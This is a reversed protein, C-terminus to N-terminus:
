RAKSTGYTATTEVRGGSDSDHAIMSINATDSPQSLPTGFSLKLYIMPQHTLKTLNTLHTPNPPTAILRTPRLRPRGDCVEDCRTAPGPHRPSGVSNRTRPLPAIPTGSPLIVPTPICRRHYGHPLQSGSATPSLHLHFARSGCRAAPVAPLGWPPGLALIGQMCRQSGPDGPSPLVFPGRPVLQHQLCGGLGGRWATRRSPRWPDAMVPCIASSGSALPM